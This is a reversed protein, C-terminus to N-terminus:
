SVKIAYGIGRYTHILKVEFDRDVRARLRSVLVDVVNTQPDFNYGWVHEMIMTKSLVRGSNRMLYELLAFERPQLEIKKGSRAVERTLLDMSLDGVAFRTPEAGQHTRRLLAYLRALLEAFSFPKILYDDGGKQLGTIRDDVSRKASLIIVPTLTKQQRMQEIVSLGDLKPLMLDMVVADYPQSLALDLGEQGNDARDVAFGAEKLGKAVFSAIKKDDEVVLIRM